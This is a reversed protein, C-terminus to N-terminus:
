RESRAVESEASRAAALEALTSLVLEPISPDLYRRLQEEVRGRREAREAANTRLAARLSEAMAHPDSAPFVWGADGVLERQERPVDSVIPLVGSAMAELLAISVGCGIMGAYLHFDSANHLRQIARRGLRGVLRVNSDLDRERIEDALRTEFPGDGAILVLLHPSDERAAQVANLVHPLGKEGSLRTVMNVVVAADPVGFEARARRRAVESPPHFDQPVLQKYRAARAGVREVYPRLEEGVYWVSHARRLGIRWRLARWPWDVAVGVRYVVNKPFPLQRAIMTHWRPDLSNSLTGHDMVVVRTATGRVALLAPVPLFLGDQVLLLPPELDRVLTRLFRGVWIPYLLSTPMLHPKIPNRKTLIHVRTEPLRLRASRGEREDVIALHLEYSDALVAVLNEVIATIGGEDPYCDVAVLLIPRDSM